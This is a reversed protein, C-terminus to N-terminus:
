ILAHSPSVMELIFSQHYMLRVMLVPHQRASAPSCASTGSVAAVATHHWSRAHFLFAMGLTSSLVTMRTGMWPMKAHQQLQQQPRRRHHRAQHPHLHQHLALRQHLPLRTQKASQHQCCQPTSMTTLHARCTAQPPISASGTTVRWPVMPQITSPQEGRAVDLCPPHDGSWRLTIASRLARPAQHGITAVLQHAVMPPTSSRMMGLLCQTLALEVQRDGLLTRVLCVMAMWPGSQQAGMDMTGLMQGLRRRLQLPMMGRSSHCGTCAGTFM